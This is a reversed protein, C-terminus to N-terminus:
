THELFMTRLSRKLVKGAGNKPLEDMFEISKPVKFRALTKRTFDTLLQETLQSDRKKVVFAKVAEGWKEDPVGIVAVEIVEPHTYFANEVEISYINVGGSIIMDKKRDVIYIYDDEDVTGMDGTYYWGNRIVLATEEPLKWYGKMINSGRAIVEGVQGVTVDKGDENVVRVEVGQVYRGASALRREQKENGNIVHDQPGLVTLVPSAETMGYAQFLEVGPFAKFVKKLLEVPMPSAGYGLTKISSVDYKRFDPENVVMNLMTPVLTVDTVQYDQVAQLFGKPTFSKLFTHTRGQSMAAIMKSCGGLHYMPNSYLVNSGFELYKSMLGNFYNHLLNKHSLMVGKSRGTTGGTYILFAVDDEYVDDCTLKVASENTIIQEYLSHGCEKKEDDAVIYEKIGEVKEKFYPIFYIFESQIFLIKLGSDKMIFELEPLSLRTNLPVAIAGIATIAYFLELYRYNNLMLIGVCDGKNIGRKKMAEKLKGTREALTHYSYRHSGDIIALSSPNFQANYILGHTIIM